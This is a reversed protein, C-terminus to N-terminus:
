LGLRLAAATELIHLKEKFSPTNNAGRLFMIQEEQKRLTPNYRRNEISANQKAM